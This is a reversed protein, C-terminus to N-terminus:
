RYSITNHEFDTSLYNVIFLILLNKQKNSLQLSYYPICLCITLMTQQNFKFKSVPFLKNGIGVHRDKPEIHTGERKCACLILATSDYLVSVLLMLSVLSPLSFSAPWRPFYMKNETTKVVEGGL